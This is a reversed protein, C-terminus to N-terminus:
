WWPTSTVPGTVRSVRGGRYRESTGARGYGARRAPLPPLGARRHRDRTGRGRHGPRRAASTGSRAPCHRASWAAWASRRPSCALPAPARLGLHPTGAVLGALAPGGTLMIQFSLRNLALGAPVLGPPLLHPLFTQRAPYNVATLSSQVAVLAYLLGAVRLGAFAQAALSASVAALAASTVLVVKRRDAADTLSGGFLGVALTPVMQAVGLAGVAFSSHTLDWIQLIVAYSTLSSGVSSLTTGAWLRRFAPSERLPRVDALLRHISVDRPDVGLRPDVPELRAKDHLQEPQM